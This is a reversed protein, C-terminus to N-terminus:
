RVVTFHEHDAVPFTYTGTRTNPHNMAITVDVVGFMSMARPYAHVVEYERADLLGVAVRITDGSRLDAAPVHQISTQTM